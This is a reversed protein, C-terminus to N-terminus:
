NLIIMYVQHLCTQQKLMSKNADKGYYSLQKLTQVSMTVPLRSGVFRAAERDDAGEAATAGVLPAPVDMEVKGDQLGRM